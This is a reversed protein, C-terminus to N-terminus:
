MNDKSKLCIGLAKSCKGESVGDIIPHCEYGLDQQCTFPQNISCSQYSKKHLLDPQYDLRQNTYDCIAEHDLCPKTISCEELCRYAGYIKNGKENIYSRTPLCSLNQDCADDDFVALCREHKLYQKALCFMGLSILEQNKYLMCSQKDECVDHQKHLYGQDDKYGCPKVCLGKHHSLPLCLYGNDCSSQSLVLTPLCSTNPALALPLSHHHDLYEKHKSQDCAIAIIAIGLLSIHKM